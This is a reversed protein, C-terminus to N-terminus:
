DVKIDKVLRNFAEREQESIKVVADPSRDSSIALWTPSAPNSPSSMAEVLHCDLCGCRDYREHSETESASTWKSGSSWYRWQHKHTKFPWM